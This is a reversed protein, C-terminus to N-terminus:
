YRLGCPHLNDFLQGNDLKLSARLFAQQEDISDDLIDFILGEKATWNSVSCLNNRIQAVDQLLKYLRKADDITLM